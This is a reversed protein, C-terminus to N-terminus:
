VEEVSIEHGDPHTYTGTPMDLRHAPFIMAKPLSRIQRDVREKLEKLQDRSLTSLDFTKGTM